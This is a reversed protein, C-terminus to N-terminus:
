VHGHMRQECRVALADFLGPPRVGATVFAWVTNALAQANFTGMRQECHVVLAAFLGQARVAATAFAWATIALDQANFTGM